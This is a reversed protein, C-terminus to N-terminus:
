ALLTKKHALATYLHFITSAIMRDNLTYSSPSSVLYEREETNTQCDFTVSTPTTTEPDGVCGPLVAKTHACLDCSNTVKKGMSNPRLWLMGPYKYTRKVSGPLALFVKEISTKCLPAPFIHLVDFLVHVLYVLSLSARGCHTSAPCVATAPSALQVSGKAALLSRSGTCVCASYWIAVRIGVHPVVKSFYHVPSHSAMQFVGQPGAAVTSCAAGRKLWM